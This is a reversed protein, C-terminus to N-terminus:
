SIQQRASRVRADTQKVSSQAQQERARIQQDDLTAIIDGAKMSDGERVRIELIRGATKPSVASDDGEIRGSLVVVNDPTKPRAFLRWAVFAGVAVIVAIAIPVLLRRGGPSKRDEAVAQTKPAEASGKHAEEQEPPAIQQETM